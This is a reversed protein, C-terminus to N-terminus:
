YLSLESSYISRAFIWTKKENDGDKEGFPFFM